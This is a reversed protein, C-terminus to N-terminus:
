TLSKIFTILRKTQLMMRLRLFINNHLWYPRKNRVFCAFGAFVDKNRARPTSTFVALQPLTSFLGHARKKFIPPLCVKGM